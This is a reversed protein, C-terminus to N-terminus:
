LSLVKSCDDGLGNLKALCELTAKTFADEKGKECAALKDGCDFYATLKKQDDSTCKSLNADCYARDFKSKSAGTSDCPKYAEELHQASSGARDCLGGCATLFVSGACFLGCVFQNTTM